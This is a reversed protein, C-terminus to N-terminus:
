EPHFLCGYIDKSKHKVMCDLTGTRALTELPKSIKAVKGTQFYAYFEKESVLINERTVKVNFLGIRTKKLLACHFTKAIVQFSSGVGLVPKDCEELWRFWEGVLFKDDRLASGCIIVKEVYSLDKPNVETYHKVLVNASLSCLINLIPKVFELESLPDCCLSVLLIRM